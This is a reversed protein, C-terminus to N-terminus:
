GRNNTGDWTNADFPTTGDSIVRSTVQVIPPAIASSIKTPQYLGSIIVTVFSLLLLIFFKIKFM